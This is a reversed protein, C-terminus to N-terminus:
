MLLGRDRRGLLRGHHFFKNNCDVKNATWRAVNSAKEVEASLIILATDLADPLDGTRNQVIENPMLPGAAASIAQASFNM